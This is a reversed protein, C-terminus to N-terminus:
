TTQNGVEQLQYVFYFMSSATKVKSKKEHEQHRVIFGYGTVKGSQVFEGLNTNTEYNLYAGKCQPFRTIPVYCSTSLTPLCLSMKDDLFTLDSKVHDFVIM